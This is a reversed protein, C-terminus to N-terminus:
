YTAEPLLMRIVPSTPLMIRAAPREERKPASSLSRARNFDPSRTMSRHRSITDQTQASGTTTMRGPLAANASSMASAPRVGRGQGSASRPIPWLRAKPAARIGCPCAMRTISASRGKTLCSVSVPRNSACVSLRWITTGEYWPRLPCGTSKPDAQLFRRKFRVPSVPALATVWSGFAVTISNGTSSAPVTCSM